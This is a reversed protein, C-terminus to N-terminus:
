EDLGQLIHITSQLETLRDLLLKIVENNNKANLELSNRTQRLAEEEEKDKKTNGGTPAPHSQLLPRMISHPTYANM